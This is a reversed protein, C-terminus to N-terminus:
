ANAGLGLTPRGEGIENRPFFCELRSSPWECQPLCEMDTADPYTWMETRLALLAPWAEPMRWPKPPRAGREGGGSGRAAEGGRAICRLAVVGVGVALEAGNRGGGGRCGGRHDGRTGAARDTRDGAVVDGAAEHQVHADVLFGRSGGACGDGLKGLFDPGVGLRENGAGFAIGGDGDRRGAGRTGREVDDARGETVGGRPGALAGLGGAQLLRLIRPRGPHQDVEGATLHVEVAFGQVERELFELEQVVEHLVAGAGHAAVLEEFAQPPVGFLHGFSRVM